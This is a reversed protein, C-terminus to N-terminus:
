WQFSNEYIGLRSLAKNSLYIHLNKNLPMDNVGKIELFGESLMYSFYDHAPLIQSIHYTFFLDMARNNFSEHTTCWKGTEPDGSDKILYCLDLIDTSPLKNLETRRKSQIGMYLLYFLSFFAYISIVVKESEDSLWFRFIVGVLLLTVVAYLTSFFIISESELTKYKVPKVKRNSEM